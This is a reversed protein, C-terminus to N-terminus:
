TSFRQNILAKFTNVTAYEAKRKRNEELLEEALTLAIDCEYIVLRLYIAAAM